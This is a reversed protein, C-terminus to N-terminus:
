LALFDPVGPVVSAETQDETVPKFMTEADLMDKRPDSLPAMTPKGEKMVILKNVSDWRAVDLGLKEMQSPSRLKEEFIEAKKLGRNKLKGPMEKEDFAWARSGRGEVVKFGLQEKSVEKNMLMTFGRERAEKIRAELIPAAELFKRLQEVGMQTVDANLLMEDTQMQPNGGIPQFLANVGNTAIAKREPCDKKARCFHCGDDSPTAPATPDDTRTAAPMLTDKAWRLLEYPDIDYSREIKGKGPARPQFVTLRVLKFPFYLHGGDFTAYEALKGIAYIRLQPDDAEVRKSGTKLDVIELLYDTVLTVDVTGKLDGRGVIPKPDSKSEARVAVPGYLLSYGAKAHQIYEYCLKAQTVIEETIGVEPYDFKFGPVLNMGPATSNELCWELLNHGNSGLNAAPSGEDPPYLAERRPAAACTMWRKASSPSLRAHSM